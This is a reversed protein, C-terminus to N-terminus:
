MMVQVDTVQDQCRSMNETVIDSSHYVVLLTFTVTSIEAM